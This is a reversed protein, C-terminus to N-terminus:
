EIQLRPSRKAEQNDSRDSAAFGRPRSTKGRRERWCMKQKQSSSAKVTELIYPAAARVRPRALGRFSIRVISFTIAPKYPNALVSRFKRVRPDGGISDSLRLLEGGPRTRIEIRSQNILAHAASRPRGPGRADSAASYARSPRQRSPDAITPRISQIQPMPALPM